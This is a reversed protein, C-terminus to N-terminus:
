LPLTRAKSIALTFENLQAENPLNGFLILYAVDEFNSKNALENVDYGRYNLGMGIGVTSIASDGAIIGALGDGEKKGKTTMKFFVKKRSSNKDKNLLNGKPFKVIDNINIKISSIVFNQIKINTVPMLHLSKKQYRM